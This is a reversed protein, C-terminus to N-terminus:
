PVVVLKGKVRGTEMELHAAGMDALPFIQAIHSKIEGSELLRALAQMDRGNSKVMMSIGKMGLAEAKAAVQTNRSSPLSVITAGPNMTKLSRDIYDGGLADLVVDIGGTAEEFPMSTYDIAEDAGLSKVFSHNRFSATTIVYAGLSRAIQIAFHGVGGSGAHVLVRDGKKVGAHEVLAQWATLAALSAAAAEPFTVNGPIRALQDAPASVHTAYAKGAGPFNVMGFVQEGAKFSPSLSEEVIGAIDWGLIVPPTKELAAALPTGGKRTKVDVPNISIARVSVLVEGEAPVPSPTDALQLNEIGGFHKLIVAEM